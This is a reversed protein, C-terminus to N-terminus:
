LSAKVTLDAGSRVAGITCTLMYRDAYTLVCRGLETHDLEIKWQPNACDLDYQVPIPV